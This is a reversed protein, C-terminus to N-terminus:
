KATLRGNKGEYSRKGFLRITSRDEGGGKMREAGRSLGGTWHDLGKKKKQNEGNEM